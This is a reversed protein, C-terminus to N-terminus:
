SGLNFGTAGQVFMAAGLAAPLNIEMRFAQASSQSPESSPWNDIIDDLLRTDIMSAVERSGSLRDIEQRLDARARTMRQFWDAAQTGAKHNILIAPPLRDKM